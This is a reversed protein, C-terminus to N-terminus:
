DEWFFKGWLVYISNIGVPLGKRSNMCNQAFLICFALPPIVYRFLCTVIIEEKSAAKPLLRDLCFHRFHVDFETLVKRSSVVEQVIHESEEDKNVKESNQWFIAITGLHFDLGRSVM